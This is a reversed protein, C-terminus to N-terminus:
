QRPCIEGIQPTLSIVQALSTHDFVSSEMLEVTYDKIAIKARGSLKCVSADNFVSEDIQLMQKAVVENDFIFYSSYEGYKTPIKAKYQEDVKFLLKGGNLVESYSQSYEGEVIVYGKYLEANSGTPRKGSFVFPKEQDVVEVSSTKQKVELSNVISSMEALMINLSADGKTPLANVDKSNYAMTIVLGTSGGPEYYNIYDGKQTTIYSFYWATGVSPLNCTAKHYTDDSSVYLDKRIYEKSVSNTNESSVCRSNVGREVAAISPAGSSIEEFRGGVIGSAQSALTNIYLIYNGKTINVASPNPEVKSTTTCNQKNVCEGYLMTKNAQNATWGSPILVKMYNNEYVKGNKIVAVSETNTNVNETQEVVVPTTTVLVNGPEVKKVVM